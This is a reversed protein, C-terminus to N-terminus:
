MENWYVGGVEHPRPKGHFCVIKADEPIKCLCHRKYSYLGQFQDQLYQIIINRHKLMKYIIDADGRISPGLANEYRFDDFMFRFDGNWGMIGSTFMGEREWRLPNLRKMALFETDKLEKVIQIIEDLGSLIVTDLDFYLNIGKNRFIEFKSWWGKYGKELKIMSFLIKKNTIYTLISGEDPDKLFNEDDTFCKFAFNENIYKKCANLLAFVYRKDYDGGTKLVCIISIM